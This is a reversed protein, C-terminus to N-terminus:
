APLGSACLAVVAACAGPIPVVRIGAARVARVLPFGPDSILPTGADTIVGVSEGQQLRQLLQTVRQEDNYSDMSIMKTTTHYHHLLKRSHRTDEAAIVDVSKLIDIARFSLDQLNGIPTAILYLVGKNM